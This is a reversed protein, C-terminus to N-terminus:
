RDGKRICVNKIGEVANRGAPPTNPPLTRELTAHYRELHAHALSILHHLHELEARAVM